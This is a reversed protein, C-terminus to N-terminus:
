PNEELDIGHVAALEAVCQEALRFDFERICNRLAALESYPRQILLASLIPEAQSPDDTDLAARMKRLLQRFEERTETSNKLSTTAAPASGNLVADPAFQNIAEVASMLAQDLRALSAGPDHGMSLGRELEVASRHTDPLAMNGAVGALKHALTAAARDGSALMNVMLQVANGYSDAFRRLYDRYAHGDSWIRLGKDINIAGSDTLPLASANAEAQADSRPATNMSTSRRHLSQILAVTLPVDFPKSIFHAMGAGIALEQQEKFVGATLAVIPLDDFQPITRLRRTAEIGDMVPMQVDMLVLDVEDSHAMLWDLAQKGDNALTVIAGQESLIRHAVERNIESDDVVLLRVRDLGRTPESQLTRPNGFSPIRKRQAAVTANYLPSATIPKSMYADIVSSDELNPLSNIAYASAMIVIPCKDPPMIERISRATAIGDLGSIKWDLIVVDPIKGDGCANLKSVIEEGSNTGWAHWGLGHAIEMVAQLETESADAVIAELGIMDPSSYTDDVVLQLPLLFWFESGQGPTSIVGIEGGMMTVLKRCITLGLGTGGFRRTTSTDAQTFASFVESQLEPAIGIGTDSVSFRLVVDNESRTALIINLEIRGSETFKIANSTLNNLIQQLRLGDGRVSSLGPPPSHIILEIDKDGAAVGMMVALNDIIEDLRFPINELTMHGAEIKSVDLIDNIIGLLTRGSARIKRVMDHVDPDLRSQELLYALGLIANLPSRIEHSMNALFDAKSRSAAQAADRAQLLALEASKQASIDQAFIMTAPGDILMVRATTKHVPVLRGQKGWGQAEFMQETPSDSVILAEQERLTARSEASIMANWPLGSLDDTALYGHLNRYRPNTYIFYGGRLIAIALPADEILTRFRAESDRLTGTLRRETVDSYTVILLSIASAQDCVPTVSVEIFRNAANDRRRIELELNRVFDGRLARRTPWEAVPLLSGDTLFVEMNEWVQELPLNPDYLGLVSRAAHNAHIVTRTKDFVILAETMNDFVARLEDRAHLVELEGAKVASIDMYTGMLRLAIGETNREIVQGRTLIWLWDQAQNRIRFMVDLMPVSGDICATLANLYGPLDDPHIRNRLFEPDDAANQKTFGLLAYCNEDAWRQGTPVHLSWLGLNAGELAVKLRNDAEIGDRQLKENLLDIHSRRSQMWYLTAGCTCAIALMLFILRTANKNLPLAIASVTRSLGVVIARDMHLPVPQVTHLAMLRYEGTTYVKGSILSEINGSHLHRSFLTEPQNLDTGDGPKEPFNYIQRGDGHVVFAWVDPAFAVTSLSHSFFERDLLATILGAFQDNQGSIVRSVAIVTDPEAKFSQFPASVYLTSQGRNTRAARFYDRDSLNAGSQARQSSYTVIGNADLVTIARIGPIARELAQLRLTLYHGSEPQMTRDLYDRIVGELGQNVTGLNGGIDNAVFDTLVQLRDRDSQNTRATETFQQYFFFIGILALVAILASWEYWIRRSSSHARNRTIAMLINNPFVVRAM